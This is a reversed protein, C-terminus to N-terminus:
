SEGEVKGSTKRQEAAAENMRRLEQLFEERDKKGEYRLKTKNDLRRQGGIDSNKLNEIWGYLQKSINEARLTLNSIQSKLNDTEKWGDLVQLMSRVEGASGRAIYLFALLESTTGREFGEAINNSVSLAARELQDTLGRHKRLLELSTFEFTLRALSAADQWVPLEEFRRYKMRQETEYYPFRAVALNVSLV